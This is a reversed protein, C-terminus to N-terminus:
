RQERDLARLAAISQALLNLGSALVEERWAPDEPCFCELLERKASEYARSGKEGYHHARNEARISGLVRIVDYTGFEACAARYDCGRSRFHEQMWEDFLGSAQYATGDLEAAFAEVRDAGFVKEFWDFEPSDRASSLLLKYKAFSGLGSHFDLHIVQRAGGIWAECHEFVIQASRSPGRGGFFLGDPYEYQGGAVAQKLNHLGNRRINWLTKLKYPEFRAPPSKPNLYADQEAYGDPAGQYDTGGYLFNRNLDVNDENFRRLTAFGYPNVGHILVFRVGDPMAERRLQDLFALQIAAGMFGEVGHVGSSVLLCPLDEGGVQAIDISLEEGDSADIAHSEIRGGIARAAEVFRGRAEAYDSSFFDPKM